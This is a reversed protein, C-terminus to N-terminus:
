KEDSFDAKTVSHVYQSLADIDDPTMNSKWRNWKDGIIAVNGKVYGKSSDIRDLSPIALPLSPDNERERNWDFPLGDVPCCDPAISHLYDLDLDFDWQKSKARTRASYFMTKLCGDMGKRKEKARELIWDKNDQYYKRIKDRNEDYYKKKDKKIRVPNERKYKRMAKNHCQKCRSARGDCRSSNKHFSELPLEMKCGPCKKLM